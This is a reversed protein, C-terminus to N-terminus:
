YCVLKKSFWVKVKGHKTKKKHKVKVYHCDDDYAAYSGHGYYGYDNYHKYNGVGIYGGGFGLNVNFDINNKAQAAPALAAGLAAAATLAIVTNRIM